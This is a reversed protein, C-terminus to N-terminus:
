KINPHSFRSVVEGSVAASGEDRGSLALRAFGQRSPEGPSATKPRSAVVAAAHAAEALDNTDCGVWGSGVRGNVM